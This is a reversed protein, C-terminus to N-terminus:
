YRSPSMGCMGAGLGGNASAGDRDGSRGPGRGVCTPPRAQAALCRSPTTLSQLTGASAPGCKLDDHAQCDRHRRSRSWVQPRGPPAGLEGVEPKLADSSEQLLRLGPSHGHSSPQNQRAVLELQPWCPCRSDATYYGDWSSVCGSAGLRLCGALAVIVTLRLSVVVLRDLQRSRGCVLM